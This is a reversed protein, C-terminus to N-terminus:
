SSLGLVLKAVRLSANSKVHKQILKKTNALKQPNRILEELLVVAENEDNAKIALRKDMLFRTNMAEQGPLPNVIIIPLGKSLAEATTLGGPKTVVLTAVEMLENIDECFSFIRINKRLVKLKRSLFNYLKKNTGTAVLLQIDLPSKDLLCVLRKIPGLGQGGGMILIIPKQGNLSYKNLIEAKNSSAYFKPDVPIGFVNVKEESVGNEILKRGTEQSPVIYANVKNYIWYSHPAYDTLIGVLPVGINHTRKLDAVIGCPFAQTCVVVDPKFTDLLGKMKGSNFKHMSEKLKQTKKVVVPNDYLYEWVEPRNKIVTMYTKNIIKELIPNTYQFSNICKTEIDKAILHLAREIALCARHHGSNNSIYM